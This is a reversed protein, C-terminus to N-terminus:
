PSIVLVRIDRINPVHWKNESSIVLIYVRTRKVCVVLLFPLAIGTLLWKTGYPQLVDLREFKRSLECIAAVGAKRAPRGKCGPLKKTSIETLPQTLGLAMSRSSTNSWNFFGTVDDPTSDAVKRSTAYHRLWHRSLRHFKKYYTFVHRYLIEAVLEAWKSKYIRIKCYSALIDFRLYCSTTVL